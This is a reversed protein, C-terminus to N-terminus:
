KNNTNTKNKTKKVKIGHFRVIDGLKWTSLINAKEDISSFFLNCKLKDELKCSDDVLTIQILKEKTWYIIPADTVFSYSSFIFIFYCFIGKTQLYTLIGYLNTKEFKEIKYKSIINSITEYDHDPEATLASKTAM